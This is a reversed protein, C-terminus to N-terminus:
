RQKEAAREKEREEMAELSEKAGSGVQEELRQVKKQQEEMEEKHARRADELATQAQAEALKKRSEMDELAKKLDAIEKASADADQQAKLSESGQKEHNAKWEDLQARLDKIESNQKAVM